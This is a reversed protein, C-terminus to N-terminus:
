IEHNYCSESNYRSYQTLTAFYLSEFVSPENVTASESENKLRSFEEILELFCINISIKSFNGLNLLSVLISNTAMLIMDDLRNM